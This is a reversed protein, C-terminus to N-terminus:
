QSVPRARESRVATRSSLNLWATQKSCRPWYWFARSSNWAYVSSNPLSSAASCSIAKKFVLYSNKMASIISNFSCSSRTIRTATLVPSSSSVAAETSSSSAVAPATVTPFTIWFRSFTWGPVYRPFPFISSTFSSKHSSSAVPMMQSSSSEGAWSLFRSSARSVFTM